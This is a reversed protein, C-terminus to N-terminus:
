THTVLIGINVDSIQVNSTVNIQRILPNACDTTGNVPGTTTTTFTQSSQAFAPQAFALYVAAILFYVGIM